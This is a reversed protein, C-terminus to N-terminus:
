GRLSAARYNPQAHPSQPGTQCAPLPAARLREVAAVIAFCLAFVSTSASSMWEPRVMSTFLPIVMIGICAAVIARDQTSALRKRLRRAHVFFTFILAAYALFATIGLKLLVYLYGNHIFRSQLIPDTGQSIYAVVPQRYFQGLGIGFLPHTEIKPIAMSNELLRYALSRGGHVEANISALREFLAYFTEPRLFALILSAVVVLVLGSITARITKGTGIQLTTVALALLSMVIIARGFTFFLGFLYLAILLTLWLRPRVLYRTSNLFLALLLVFIAPTVSRIVAGFTQGLAEAQDFGGLFFVRQHFITQIGQGVAVYAGLISVAILFYKLRRETGLSLYVIPFGLWLLFPEAEEFLLPHQTHQFFLGRAVGIGVLFMLIGFPWTYPRFSPWWAQAQNINRILVLVLIGSITIFTVIHGLLQTPLLGLHVTYVVLLAYEPLLWALIPMAVLVLFAVIFFWPLVGAALGFFLASGLVLLGFVIRAPWGFDKTAYNQSLSTQQSPM